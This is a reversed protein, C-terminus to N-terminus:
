ASQRMMLKSDIIIRQPPIDRGLAADDMREMLLQVTRDAIEDTDQAMTTLPPWIYRSMPHDDHGAVRIDAEPGRGVKLGAEGAAAMVGFAFRDNACLLTRGPLGGKEALLLRMRDYGLREFDWSRPLNCDIVMPEVGESRMAARYGNQRIQANDTLHTSELLIPPEGSRCLYQVMATVSQTHDNGVFPVDEGLSVDFSVMPVSDRLRDFVGPKSTAGLPSVIVGQVKFELMSRVAEEELEPLTHCSIQVPWFGQRRLDLEIRALFKSFFPDYMTPIIIGINRVRKSNLHRAFSNPEFDSKKLVAEIRNRTSEKVNLPDSFYKALTPRSVGCAVAFEEMTRYSKKTAM